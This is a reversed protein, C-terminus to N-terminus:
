QAKANREIEKLGEEEDWRLVIRQSEEECAKSFALNEPSVHTFWRVSESGIWADLPFNEICVSSVSSNPTLENLRAILQSTPAAREVFQPGKKLWVYAGNGVAVALVFALAGRRLKMSPLEQYIRSCFIGIIAALGVSPDYTNRSPIHNTYTLFSVPLSALAMQAGFLFYLKMDSYARLPRSRYSRLCLAALLFPLAGSLLRGLARVYVPIVHLGVAYYHHAVFANSQSTWLWICSYGGTIALVPFAERLAERWTGSRLMSVLVALPALTAATEKSLLGALLVVLALRRNWRGSRTWFILFLLCGLTVLISNVASIWMVAEHHREYVAFFFGATWAATRRGTAGFVLHYVLVSALAHLAISTVYFYGPNPGFMWVCVSFYLYSTLRFFESPVTLILAPNNQVSRVFSLMTFDDSIFPNHIVPLYTLAAAAV